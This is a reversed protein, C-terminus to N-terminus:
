SEHTSARWHDFMERALNDRWENCADSSELHIIHDGELDQGESLNSCPFSEQTDVPMERIVHNHLLACALIIRVQIKILYSSRSGLIGWREKLLDFAREIVNRACSHKM